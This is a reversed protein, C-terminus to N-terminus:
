EFKKIEDQISKCALQEEVRTYRLDDKLYEIHQTKAKILNLTKSVSVEQLTNIERPEPKRLFKFKVPQGFPHTTIGESDTTFPYLLRMFPNGLIVKDTINKVLVFTTKFCTNDQCVHTNPIKFEIQMKGGSASTLRGRTKKFYKSPIIGEQICNLDAGSDILAIVEFEFDRSIVIRVISHWKQFNIRSITELFKESSEEQVMEATPNATEDAEEDYPNRFSTGEENGQHSTNKLRQNHDFRLTALNERLTHVESKTEKIEKQLDNVTVNKTKRKTRLHGRKGCKFCKRSAKPTPPQNKKYSSDADKLKQKRYYKAAIRKRHFTKSSEKGRFKSVWKKKSPTDQSEPGQKQDGLREIEKESESPATSPSSSATHVNFVILRSSKTPKPSSIAPKKKVTSRSAKRANLTVLKNSTTTDPSPTVPKKKVLEEMKQLCIELATQDKSKLSAQRTTPLKVLPKELAPSPKSPNGPQLIAKKEVKEEM